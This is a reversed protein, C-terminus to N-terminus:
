GSANMLNLELKKLAIKLNAQTWLLPTADNPIYCGNDLYYLEPCKFLGFQSDKATLQQLSRNLYEIQKQLYKEEHTQQYKIGFIISVIPDFICWQAEEGARLARGQKELWKEREVVLATRINPPVDKYDRCWFTDRLYRRIGQEGQLNEIVECLIQDAIKNQVIRLPYILFLLAADYQRHKPKAQICEAPLINYLTSEGVQILQDLIEDNIQNGKYAFVRNSTSHILKKLAVLGAVVVGISSAEIKSEEEWHGSDEDNWYQIAQFYFPFFVLMEWESDQPELFEQKALTCYFWLFYGLADNQAHAWAENIEELQNGNFRIHPRNMADAANLKGEIIGEFRWKHKIFYAMLTHANQIAIDYKGLVYFSHAIHINDRVWVNSYGTYETDDQLIAAPFLGNNLVPFDFTKHKELLSYIEQINRTDQSFQIKDFLKSEYNSDKSTMAVTNLILTQLEFPAKFFNVTETATQQRDSWTGSHKSGCTISLVSYIQTGTIRNTKLWDQNVM